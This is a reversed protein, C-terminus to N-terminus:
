LLAYAAGLCREIRNPDMCAHQAQFVAPNTNLQNIGNGSTGQHKATHYKSAQPWGTHLNPPPSTCELTRINQEALHQAPCSARQLNVCTTAKQVNNCVARIHLQQRLLIACAEELIKLLVWTKSGSKHALHARTNVM